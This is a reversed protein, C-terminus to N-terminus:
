PRSFSLTLCADIFIFPSAHSEITTIHIEVKLPPSGNTMATWMRQSAQDGAGSKLQNRFGRKMAELITNFRKKSAFASLPKNGLPGLLMKLLGMWNEEAPNQGSLSLWLETGKGLSLGASLGATIFPYSATKIHEIACSVFLSVLVAAKAGMTNVFKKHTRIRFSASIWPDGFSTDKRHYM